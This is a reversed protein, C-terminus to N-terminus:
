MLETIGSDLHFDPLYRSVLLNQNLCMCWFPSKEHQSLRDKDAEDCHAHCKLPCKASAKSRARNDRANEDTKHHTIQLRANNDAGRKFHHENSRNGDPRGNRWVNDGTTNQASSKCNRRTLARFNRQRKSKRDRRKIEDNIVRKRQDHHRKKDM